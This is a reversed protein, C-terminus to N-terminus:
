DNRSRVPAASGLSPVAGRAMDRAARGTDVVVDVIHTGDPAQGVSKVRYNQANPVLVESELPNLALGRANHQRFIVPVKGPIDKGLAFAQSTEPNTSWSEMRRTDFKGGKALKEVAEKPLHAGRYLTAPPSQHKAAMGKLTQALEGYEGTTKRAADAAQIESSNTHVWRRRAEKEAPSLEAMMAKGSKAVALMNAPDRVPAEAAALRAAPRAGFLAAGGAGLAAGVGAGKLASVVSGDQAYADMAGLGGGVVAAGLRSEPMAAAALPGFVQSAVNAVAGSPTAMTALHRRAMEQEAERSATDQMIGLSYLKEVARQAWPADGYIKQVPLETIKPDGM